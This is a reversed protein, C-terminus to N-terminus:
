LDKNNVNKFTKNKKERQISEIKEFSIKGEEGIKKLPSIFTSKKNTFNQNNEDNAFKNPSYNYLKQSLIYYGFDLDM